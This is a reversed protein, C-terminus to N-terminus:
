GGYSLGRAINHYEDLTYVKNSLENDKNLIRYGICKGTKEDSVVCAKLKTGDNRELFVVKFSKIDKRENSLIM